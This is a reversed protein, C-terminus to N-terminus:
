LLRLNLHIYIIFFSSMFILSHVPLYNIANKKTMLRFSRFHSVFIIQGRFSIQDNPKGFLFSPIAAEIITDVIRKSFCVSNYYWIWRRLSAYTGSIVRPRMILLTKYYKLLFAAPFAFVMLFLFLIRKCSLQFSMSWTTYTIYCLM